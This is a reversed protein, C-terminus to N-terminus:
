QKRTDERTELRVLRQELLRAIQDIKGISDVAKGLGDSNRNIEMQMVAVDKRTNETLLTITDLQNVLRGLLVAAATMM